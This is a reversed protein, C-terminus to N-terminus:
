ALPACRANAQILKVLAKFNVPKQLCPAARLSEPLFAADYGTTFITPVGEHEFEEALEFALVGNLNLDLLACDPRYQRLLERTRRLNSAPGIIIAGRRMLAACMDAAVLYDDEVVLVRLGNLENGDDTMQLHTTASEM